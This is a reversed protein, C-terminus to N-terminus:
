KPTKDHVQESKNRTRTLASAFLGTPVAVIGIGIIMVFVTFIRGGVTIPYVDGYGVTTLTVMAWWLCHFISGFKDPQVEDEFYYIGVSSLYILMATAMLYITLEDRIENFADKFRQIAKTYRLFKFVRIVRFFRLIRVARLDVGSTIYFPLIAILDVMGYFSFIYGIRSNAYLIRLAM